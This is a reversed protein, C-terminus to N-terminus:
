DAINLSIYKLIIAKKVTDVDTFANKYNQSLYKIM